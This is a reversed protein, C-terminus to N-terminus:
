AEADALEKEVVEDKPIGLKPKAKILEDSSCFMRDGLKSNEVFHVNWEKKEKNFVNETDLEFVIVGDIDPHNVHNVKDGVRLTSKRM